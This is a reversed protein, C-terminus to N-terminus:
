RRVWVLMDSEQRNAFAYYPIFKLNTEVKKFEKSYLVEASEKRWGKVNLVKVGLENDFSSTIDADKDTKVSLANLEVGNDVEELCYVMPGNMLCVRGANDRVFPNAEIFEPKFLLNYKIECDPTMPIEAYGDVVKVEIPEGNKEFYYKEVWGPVRVFLSKHKYGKATIEVTGDDPYNTTVNLSDYKSSVFQNVFVGAETEAYIVNAFSAMFRNVNPPCCSCDFVEKRRWIPLIPRRAPVVATEKDKEKRCIELPNEYFFSKGDLSTSSLFVNYMVKEIVDGYKGNVNLENMRLCFLMLGIGACTECYATMNPLDYAKTFSEGLRTSGIGGTIYLKKTVIDNFLANCAKELEADNDLEAMDAMACYYYMARVAHGEAERLERAPANDQFAERTAVIKDKDNAGRQNIFFEALEHYETNGTYRYLRFLALEIEEHGCTVFEASKEDMFCRKIYKVYREALNLLDNKGVYEAYAIAAEIIHGACYLEHDNRRKFIETPEKQQFYSNFYGDARQNECMKAILEDCFEILDTYKSRDYHVLYAVAEIWKAVDSDYYVHMNDNEKNFRVAAFRGSDEFRKKVAYISVSANLNFRNKWFGDTLEVKDFKVNKAKM